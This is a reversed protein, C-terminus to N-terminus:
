IDNHNCKWIGPFFVGTTFLCIMWKKFDYRAVLRNMYLVM